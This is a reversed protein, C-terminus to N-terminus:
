NGFRATTADLSLKSGITIKGGAQGLMAVSGKSFFGDLPLEM